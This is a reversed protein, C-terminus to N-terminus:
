MTKMYIKSEQLTNFRKVQERILIEWTEFAVGM